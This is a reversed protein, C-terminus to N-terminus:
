AFSRFFQSIHEAVRQPAELPLLHTTRELTEVAIRPNKRQVLRATRELFTDTEAGRLIQTPPQLNPLGRWLEMDRWVSTAYIRVEWERSYCLKWGGQEDPCTIGEVYARLSEDSFYRFISKRRYSRFIRERDDFRNRRRRAAPVLPHLREALGLAHVLRYLQVIAPPFLVPDLLTIGAFREPAWLAARLVAIGGVSHGVALVPEHLGQQDLFALLDRSLPRWDAIDHPDSKPWLPRQHMALVRFHQALQELLPHYCAPPYGNAHLFVLPPGSEGHATFPINAPTM